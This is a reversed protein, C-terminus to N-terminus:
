AGAETYRREVEHATASHVIVDRLRAPGWVRRLFDSQARVVASSRSDAVIDVWDINDETASYDIEVIYQM